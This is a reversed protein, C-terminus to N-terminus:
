HVADVAVRMRMLLVNLEVRKRCADTGGVLIEASAGREARQVGRLESNGTQSMTIGNVNTDTKQSTSKYCSTDQECAPCFTRRSVSCFIVRVSRIDFARWVRRELRLDSAALRPPPLGSGSSSCSADNPSATAATLPEDCRM